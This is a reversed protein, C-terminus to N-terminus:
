TQGASGRAWAVVPQLCTEWERPMTSSYCLAGVIRAHQGLVSLTSACEYLIIHHVLAENAKEVLPTYQFCYPNAPQALAERDRSNSSQIPTTRGRFTM